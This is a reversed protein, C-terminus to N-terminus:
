PGASFMREVQSVNGQQDKIRVTLTGRPTRLAASLPLQWIGPGATQFKAALNQGAAIGNVAFDAVVEFSAPDIEGYDIMGILIRELPPNAGARPSTVTLTPRQDDLM